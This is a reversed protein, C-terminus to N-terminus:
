SIQSTDEHTILLSQHTAEEKALYDAKLEKKEIKTQNFNLNEIKSLMCYLKSSRTLLKQPNRAKLNM